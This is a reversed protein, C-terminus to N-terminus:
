TAAREFAMCSVASLVAAAAAAASVFARSRQRAKGAGMRGETEAALAHGDPTAVPPPLLGPDQATVTEAMALAEAATIRGLCYAHYVQKHKRNLPYVGQRLVAAMARQVEDAYERAGGLLGLGLGLRAADVGFRAAYPKGDGGVAASCHGRASVGADSAVNDLPPRASNNLSADKGRQQQQQEGAIRAVDSQGAVGGGLGGEAGSQDTCVPKPLPPESPRCPPLVTVSCACTLQTMIRLLHHHFHITEWSPNFHRFPFAIVLPQVPVQARFVGTRFRIMAAGNTTTGEPFIVLPLYTPERLRQLLVRLKRQASGIMGGGGGGSSRCSGGGMSSGGDCSSSSGGGGCSSSADCSSGGGSGGCGNRGCVSGRGSDDGSNGSPCSASSGAQQLQRLQWAHAARARQAIADAAPCGSGVFVAQMAAAVAGICPVASIAHKAVFACPGHVAIIALIDLYGTHNSVIVMPSLAATGQERIGSQVSEGDHAAVDIRWVALSWLLGRALPGIPQLLLIRWYPRPKLPSHTDSANVAALDDGELGLMSLKAVLYSLLLCVMLTALRLPLLVIGCVASRVADYARRGRDASGTLRLYPRFTSDIDTFSTPPKLLPASAEAVASNM